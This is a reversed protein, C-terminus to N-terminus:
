LPAVGGYAWARDANPGPDEDPRWRTVLTLGPEVLPRGNFMTLIDAHSRPVFTLGWEGAAVARGLVKEPDFDYTCHSIVLYSGPALRDLYSAVIAAPQDEDVIHHLTAVFLLAVPQTLDLTEAAAGLVADPDRLDAFAAATGPSGALLERAHNFVMPDDDVYVVRADSGNERAVEHVNPSTPFGAGIDLFQSIGAERLFRVARVLFKRNGVAYDLFEPMYKLAEEAGARDIEFNDKGGLWYDYVRAPHPIDTRMQSGNGPPDQATMLQGM